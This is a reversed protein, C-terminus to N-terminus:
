LLDSGQNLFRNRIYEASLYEAENNLEQELMSDIMLKYDDPLELDSQQEAIMLDFIVLIQWFM